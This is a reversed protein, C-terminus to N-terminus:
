TSKRNSVNFSLFVIEGGDAATGDGCGGADGHGNEEGGSGSSLTLELSYSSLFCKLTRQCLGGEGLCSLLRAKSKSASFVPLIHCM